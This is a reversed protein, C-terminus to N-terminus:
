QVEKLLAILKEILRDLEPEANAAVIVPAGKWDSMESIAHTIESVRIVPACVVGPPEMQVEPAETDGAVVGAESRPFLSAAKIDRATMPRAEADALAKAQQVVEARQEPEIRALERAQGQNSVITDLGAPLSKVANAGSILQNCHARNWGWREKCYEEFTNFDSKHSHRRCCPAFHATSFHIV